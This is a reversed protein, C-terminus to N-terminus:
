ELEWVRLPEPRWWTPAPGTVELLLRRPGAPLEASLPVCLLCGYRPERAGGTVVYGHLSAMEPERQEAVPALEHFPNKLDLLRSWLALHFDCHVPKVPLTALLRCAARQDAFGIRTKSSTSVSQWLGIGVLVVVAADVWRGFRARLGCALAALLLAMPYVLAHAHRVNRFGMVWGGDTLRISHFQLGLMVVALWAVLELPVRLGLLPAAVALAVLVHPQFSFLRDGLYDPRFLTDLWTWFESARLPHIVPADPRKLGEAALEVHYPAIPDGALAYSVIASAGFLVAATAALTWTRRDLRRRKRWAAFLVVPVMLLASFKAHAGLWLSVAAGAWAVSRWRADKADLAALACLLALASFFSVFLDNTMMTAWAFDLPTAIVLLAGVVGGCRGCLKRGLAYVLGIGLTDVVVFPLILARETLGFLRCALVAPLWWTFRYAINDPPVVADRLISRVFFLLNADDGLGFGSFCALRLAAGAAMLGLALALDVALPARAAKAAADIPGFDQVPARAYAAGRATPLPTSAARALLPRAVPM